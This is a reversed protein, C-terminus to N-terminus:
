PTSRPFSPRTPWSIDFYHIEVDKIKMRKAGAGAEEMKESGLVVAGGPRATAAAGIGLMKLFRKRSLTM